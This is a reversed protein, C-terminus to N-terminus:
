FARLRPRPPAHFHGSPHLTDAASGGRSFKLTRQRALKDYLEAFALWNLDIRRSARARSRLSYFFDAFKIPRSKKKHAQKRAEEDGRCARILVVHEQLRVVTKKVRLRTYMCACEWVYLMFPTYWTPSNRMKDTVRYRESRFVGLFNARGEPCPLIRYEECTSTRFLPLLLFATLIPLSGILLRSKIVMESWRISDTSGNMTVAYRRNSLQLLNKGKCATDTHM